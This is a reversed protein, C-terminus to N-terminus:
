NNGTLHKRCNIVASKVLGDELELINVASNEQHLKIWDGQKLSSLIAKNTWSHGVVVISEDNHNSLINKFADLVRSRFDIINEGGPIRYNPNNLVKEKLNPEQKKIDQIHMGEFDGWNIERLGNIQMVELNNLEAISKATKVARISPSSYVAKLNEDKLRHAVLKAQKMGDVTLDPDNSGSFKGLKNFESEAHRVLIIKTM